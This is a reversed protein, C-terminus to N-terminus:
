RRLNRSASPRYNYTSGPLHLWPSEHEAPSPSLPSHSMIFATCLYQVGDLYQTEYYVQVRLAIQHIAQSPLKLIAPSLATLGLAAAAAKSGPIGSHSKRDNTRLSEHHEKM